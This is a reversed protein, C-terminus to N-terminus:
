IVMKEIPVVLIGEAGADKLKGIVEWFDDENVVSHLSFWGEQALPLITPSKMGPILGIIENLRNKPANLLIYKNRQAKRVAEIRFELKKLLEIKTQNLNKNAILVAESKMIVDVEKLNNSLLTGGSSVIEFIADAMGIGPTIEVSGSITHIEADLSNEKLFSRLIEPYSTAIRKGSLWERGTYSVASPVAISLRCRSFGLKRVIEVDKGKELVENLGLIGIDAVGDAVYQPIDDDRLLLVEMPFGEALAKLHNGGNSVKIGCRSLLEITGQNLRGSKQIALTIKTNM